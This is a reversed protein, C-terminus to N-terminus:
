AGADRDAKRQAAILEAITELARALIEAQESVTDYLKFLENVKESDGEQRFPNADVHEHWRLHAVYAKEDAEWYKELYGPITRPDTMNHKGNADHWHEPENGTSKSM